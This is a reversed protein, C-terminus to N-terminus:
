HLILTIYNKFPLDVPVGGKFTATLNYSKNMTVTIKTQTDTVDGSWGVFSGNTDPKATLTVQDGSCQQSVTGKGVTTVTLKNSDNKFATDAMNKFYDVQSVFGTTNNGTSGAFVGVDTVSFTFGTPLNTFADSEKFTYRYHVTDANGLRYGFSWENTAKTFKVRLYLPSTTFQANIIQPGTLPFMKGTEDFYGVFYNLSTNNTDLDFRLWKTKGAGQSTDRVLIGQINWQGSPPQGLASNFKVEMEFDQDSATQLIRPADKNTNSFTLDQGQPIPISLVGSNAPDYAGSTSIGTVNKPNDVTWVANNLSCRNFDDSQFAAGSQAAATLPFAAVLALLVLSLIVALRIFLTGITKM